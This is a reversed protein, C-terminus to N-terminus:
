ATDEEMELMVIGTSWKEELDLPLDRAYPALLWLSWPALALAWAGWARAWPPRRGFLCYTLMLREYCQVPLRM